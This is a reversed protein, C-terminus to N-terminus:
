FTFIYGHLVSVCFICGDRCSGSEDWRDICLNFHMGMGLKGM